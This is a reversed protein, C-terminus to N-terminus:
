PLVKGSLVALEIRELHEVVISICNNRENREEVHWEIMVDGADLGINLIRRGFHRVVHIGRSSSCCPAQAPTPWTRSAYMQSEVLGALVDIVVGRRIRGVSECVVGAFAM